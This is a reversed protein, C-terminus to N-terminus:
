GHHSGRERAAGTSHGSRGRTLGGGAPRDDPVHDSDADRDVVIELKKGLERAKSYLRVRMAETKGPYDEGQKIKRVQGDSWEGWPHLTARGKRKPMTKLVEAM